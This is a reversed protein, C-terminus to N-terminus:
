LLEVEKHDEFEQMQRYKPARQLLLRRHAKVWQRKNLRPVMVVAVGDVDVDITEIDGADESDDLGRHEPQPEAVTAMNRRQGQAGQRIEMEYERMWRSVSALSAGLRSAIQKQTLPEDYLAQLVDRPPKSASTRKRQRRPPATPRPRHAM